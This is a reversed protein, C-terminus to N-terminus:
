GRDCQFGEPADPYAAMTADRHPGDVLVRLHIYERTLKGDPLLRRSIGICTFFVERGGTVRDPIRLVDDFTKQRELARALKIQDPDSMDPVFGKLRRGIDTLFTLHQESPDNERTFVVFAFEFSLPSGPEYVSPNALTVRGVVTQGDRDLRKKMRNYPLIVVLYFAAVALVLLVVLGVCIWGWIPM